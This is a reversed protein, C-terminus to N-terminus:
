NGSCICSARVQELALTFSSKDFYDILGAYDAMVAVPIVAFGAFVVWGYVLAVRDLIKRWTHNRLGLSQFLSSVGHSLHLALLGVALIYFASVYWKAFGLYMMAYVNLVPEEVGRLAFALQSYDFLSRTTYHLLHFVIFAAIILGSWVMTRSAYSAQITGEALYGSPRAQRNELALRIAVVIHVVVSALLVLRVVWLLGYPLTQLKHAYANIWEPALFFQLNGVMHGLVFGALVLGTLAMLYKKGLSSNLLRCIPNM